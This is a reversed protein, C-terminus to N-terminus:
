KIGFRLKFALADVEDFIELKSYSHFRFGNPSVNDLLWKYVDSVLVYPYPEFTVQDYLRFIM